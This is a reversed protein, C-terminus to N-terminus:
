IRPPPPNPDRLIRQDELRMMWPLKDEWTVVRPVPPPAPVSACGVGVLALGLAWPVFGIPCMSRSDKLRSEKLTTNQAKQM